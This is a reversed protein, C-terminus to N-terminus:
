DIKTHKTQTRKRCCCRICCWKTCLVMLIVVVALVCLVDLMLFKWLPMKLYHPKLHSGGFQLVHEVWFAVSEQGSPLHKLVKSCKHINEYYSTNDVLETIAQEFEEETFDHPGLVKGYGRAEGRVANYHQDGFFPMMLMPVGHYVAELQGNNGAHTVFIRTKPHGLIDNQPLWSSLLINKSMDDPIEGSHRLIFSLKSKKFTPIMKKLIVDPLAKFESGFAILVIGHEAKSIFRSFNDPLPKAPKAAIGGIYRYHPASVRHPDLCINDIVILFMESELYLEYMSKITKEPILEKFFADDSFLFRDCSYSLINFLLYSGSNALRHFINSDKTLYMFPVMGEVSPLSSVRASWPDPLPSLSIYPVSLKYPIFYHYRNVTADVIALDVNTLKSMVSKDTMTEWIQEKMIQVLTPFVTLPNTVQQKVVFEEFINVNKTLNPILATIGDPIRSKYRETVIMLVQHGKEKLDSAIVSFINVHSGHNFPVLLITEAEVNQRIQLCTLALFCLVLTVKKM